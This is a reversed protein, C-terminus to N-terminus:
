HAQQRGLLDNSDLAGDRFRARALWRHGVEHALVSLTTDDGNIPQSLDDAYKTWADMTVFSELRGASGFDRSSDQVAVGLGRDGNRVVLQYAFVGAEVLRRSTYIVLQQYDDGHTKYFRQAVAAADLTDSARFTEALAGPGGKAAAASLDLTTLGGQENGPAIGVVGEDPTSIQSGYTFDVRGDRYLTLQFTNSDRKDFLPVGEWTFTAQEASSAFTVSGGSSPDLDAFFAALRPPGALVRGLNRASSASDGAGFTLNGDSNVWVRSYSQGYLPFEFPLTVERTDDDGLPLKNGAVVAVPRDVRSVAYSGSPAFQLGAGALDFLNRLLALDGQDELVAIQGSDFDSTRAAGVGTTGAQLGARGDRELERRAAQERHAWVADRASARATGCWGRQGAPSAAELGLAGLGSLAVAICTSVRFARM